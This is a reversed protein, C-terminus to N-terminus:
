DKKPIDRLSVNQDENQQDQWVKTPLGFGCENELRQYERAATALRHRLLRNARDPGVLWIRHLNRLAFDVAAHPDTIVSVELRDIERPSIEGSRLEEHLTVTVPEIRLDTGFHARIEDLCSPHCQFTCLETRGKIHGLDPHERLLDDYNIGHKYKPITRIDVAKEDTETVDCIRDLTITDLVTEGNLKCIFLLYYKQGKVLIQVPSVKAKRPSFIQEGDADRRIGTYTIKKGAAIAQEIQDVADLLDRNETKGRQTMFDLHLLKKKFHRSSLSAVRDILECTTKEDISPNASLSDIMVRLDADTFPRENIFFNTGVQSELGNRKDCNITVGDWEMLKELHRHVAKRDLELGRVALEKRIQEQTMPHEPDSCEWLVQLIMLPALSKPMSDAM